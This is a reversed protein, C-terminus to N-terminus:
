EERKLKKYLEQAHAIEDKTPKTRISILKKSGNSKVVSFATASVWYYDGNQCLNKVIGKWTDGRNLTDWLDKFAIKPMDQHRIMNHPQGILEDKSYGAIASFDSNVYTIIGKTDTESVIMTSRDLIIERAM